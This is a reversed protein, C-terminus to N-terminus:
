RTERTSVDCPFNKNHMQIKNWRQRPRDASLHQHVFGPLTLSILCALLCALLATSQINLRKVCTDSAENELNGRLPQCIQRHFIKRYKAPSSYKLTSGQLLLIHSVENELGVRSAPLDAQPILWRPRNRYQIKLTNGAVDARCPDFGVSM